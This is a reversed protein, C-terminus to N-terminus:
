SKFPMPLYTAAAMAKYKTDSPNGKSFTHTSNAIRVKKNITNTDYITFFSNGSRLKGTIPFYKLYVFFPFATRM